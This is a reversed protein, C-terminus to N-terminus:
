FQGIVFYVVLESSMIVKSELRVSSKLQNQRHHSLKTLDIISRVMMVGASSVPLKSVLSRFLLQSNM